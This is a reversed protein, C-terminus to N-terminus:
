KKPNAKLAASLWDLAEYLGQGSTAIAGQIAWLHNRLRDLQLIEAVEDVNAANPLDQKNAIILITANRLEEEALQKQMEERFDPMRERDNSDVVFIIADTNQYYHRWLPRIKDPGGVDWCTFNIDKYEVTEVNFGITPITTVIEGLRLKYLMTTKGAADLGIMLIRREKKKAFLSTVASLWGKGGGISASDLSVSEGGVRRIRNKVINSLETRWAIDANAGHQTCVSRHSAPFRKALIDGWGPFYRVYENWSSNVRSLSLSSRNAGLFELVVLCVDPVLDAFRGRSVTPLFEDRQTETFSALAEKRIGWMVTHRWGCAIQLSPSVFSRDCWAFGRNFETGEVGLQGFRNSGAVFLGDKTLAVTHGVGFGGGAAVREVAPLGPVATFTKVADCPLVGLQGSTNCGAVLLQREDRTVLLTFYDGCSADVIPTDISVPLLQPAAFTTLADSGLQGVDNRGWGVVRGTDSIALAHCGGCMVRIITGVSDPIAVPAIGDVVDIETGSGRGLQHFSNLGGSYVKGSATLAVFFMAGASVAVFRDGTPAPVSTFKLPGSAQGCSTPFRFLQNETCAFVDSASAAISVIGVVGSARAVPHFRMHAGAGASFLKGNESLLYSAHAGCAALRVPESFALAPKDQNTTSGLGLQGYANHGHSLMEINVSRFYARCPPHARFSIAGRSGNKQVACRPVSVIMM